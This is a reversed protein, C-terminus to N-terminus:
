LICVEEALIRKKLRPKLMSYEVLDVPRRLAKELNQKAEILELLGVSPKLDVLIDVDSGQKLEGRAASGFLGAKTIPYNRIVKLIATKLSSISDQTKTM